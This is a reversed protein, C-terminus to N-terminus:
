NCSYLKRGKPGRGGHALLFLLTKEYWVFQICMQIFCAHTTIAWAEPFIPDSGLRASGRQGLDVTHRRTPGLSCVCQRRAAESRSLRSRPGHRIIETLTPTACKQRAPGLNDCVDDVNRVLGSLVHVRAVSRVVMVRCPPYLSYRPFPRM